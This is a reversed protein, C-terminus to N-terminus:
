EDREGKLTVVGLRMLREFLNYDYLQYWKLTDVLVEHLLNLQDVLCETEKSRCSFNPGNIYSYEDDTTYPRKESM